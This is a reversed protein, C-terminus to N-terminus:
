SSEQDHDPDDTFTAIVPAHDSPKPGAREERDIRARACRARMPSTALVFDIRAGRNEALSRGRYDWWSFAGERAPHHHRFTDILGFGRLEDFAARVKDHCLITGAWREPSWVDADTPAVNFDGCVLLPEDPAHRAELYGRLRAFWGLKYRFAPDGVRKGNPVYASLVRVGCVTAAVLRAQDDEGPGGGEFGVLPDELEHPSLIAVGNYTKQGHVVAQYGLLEFERRPFAGDVCKTEQLCLVDPRHQQIWQYVRDIRARVSNVNWTVVKM